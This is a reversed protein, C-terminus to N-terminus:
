PSGGSCLYTGVVPASLGTFIAALMARIMFDSSLVDIM